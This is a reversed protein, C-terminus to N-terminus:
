KLKGSGLHSRIRMSDPIPEGGVAGLLRTDVFAIGEFQVPFGCVMGGKSDLGKEARKQYEAVSTVSGVGKIQYANM